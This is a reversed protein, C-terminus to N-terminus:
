RLGLSGQFSTLVSVLCRRRVSGLSATLEEHEGSVWVVTVISDLRLECPSLRAHQKLADPASYLETPQALPRAHLGSTCPDSLMTQEQGCATLSIKDPLQRMCDDPQYCHSACISTQSAQSPPEAQLYLLLGKCVLIGASIRSAPLCLCDFVLWCVKSFCMIYEQPIQHTYALKDYLGHQLCEASASASSPQLM